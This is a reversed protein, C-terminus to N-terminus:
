KIEPVITLYLLRNNLIRRNFIVKFTQNRAILFEYEKKQKKPPVINELYVGKTGKPIKIILLSENVLPKYISDYDLRFNLNLSTSLFGNEKFIKNKSFNKGIYKNPVRRVAILNENSSFKSIYDDLQLIISNYYENITIGRLHNNINKSYYGCYLEFTEIEFIQKKTATCNRILKQLNQFYSSHNNEWKEIKEICEFYKYNNPKFDFNILKNIEKDVKFEFIYNGLKNCVKKLNM